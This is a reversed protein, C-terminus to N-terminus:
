GALTRYASRFYILPEGPGVDAVEIEGVFITHDGGEHAHVLRCEAFGLTGPLLPVGLEGRRWEVGAFKDSGSSAFRNSVEVQDAALFNVAFAAAAAFQGYSAADKDICVLALPPALSVSSFATATLGYPRGAGDATTVVTVGAAFSGMAKRFTERDVAM